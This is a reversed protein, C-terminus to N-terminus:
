KGANVMANIVAASHADIPQGTTSNILGFGNNPDGDTNTSGNDWYVPILGKTKASGFMYSAYDVRAKRAADTEAINKVPGTEGILVPISKDIFPAKFKAFLTDIESKNGSTGWTASTGKLAFPDPRYYHFGVILKNQATDTPLKFNANLLAEAGTCFSNILLFRTSNKGGTARVTDVFIQAWENVIDYQAKTVDNRTAWFWGGDHLENYGEFILFDDYDKFQNAIQEWVKTFKETIATKDASNALAKNMSLWGSESTPTDTSGDHHLNIIATLGANHAMDVVEKVRTLRATTITYDPAAGIHNKWTVPIRVLKFGQAKVGNLLAQSIAVGRWSGNGTEAPADLSNGLNWGVDIDNELFYELASGPFVEGIGEDGASSPCSVFLLSLIGVLLLMKKPIHKM